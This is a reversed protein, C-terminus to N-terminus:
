LIEAIADLDKKVQRWDDNAIHQKALVLLELIEGKVPHALDEDSCKALRQEFSQTALKPLVVTKGDIILEKDMFLRAALDLFEDQALSTPLAIYGKKKTQRRRLREERLLRDILYSLPFIIEMQLAHLVFMWRIGQQLKKLKPEIISSDLRRVDIALIDEIDQVTHYANKRYPLIICASLADRLRPLRLSMIPWNAIAQRVATPSCFSNWLDYYLKMHEEIVRSMQLSRQDMHMSLWQINEQRELLRSIAGGVAFASAPINERGLSDKIQLARRMDQLAMQKVEDTKYKYSSTLEHMGALLGDLVHRFHPGLKFLLTVYERWAKVDYTLDGTETARKKSRTGYSHVAHESGRFAEYADCYILHTTKGQSKKGKKRNHRFITGPYYLEHTRDGEPFILFAKQLLVLDGWPFLWMDAKLFGAKNHITFGEIKKGINPYM